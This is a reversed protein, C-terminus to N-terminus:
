LVDSLSGEIRQFALFGTVILVTVWVFTWVVQIAAIEGQGTLSWRFGEVVVAMPNLLYLWRWEQPVLSLPYVVPSAFMWMQLGFTLLHTVDRYRGNLAALWLTVGMAAMVALPPYPSM